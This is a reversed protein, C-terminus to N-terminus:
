SGASPVSVPAGMESPVICSFPFSSRISLLEDNTPAAPGLPISTQVGCPPNLKPYSKVAVGVICGGSVKAIPSRLPSPTGSTATSLKTFPKSWTKIRSFPLLAETTNVAVGAALETCNPCGTPNVKSPDLVPVALASQVVSVAFRGAPGVHVVVVGPQATPAPSSLQLKPSTLEPPFTVAVTAAESAATPLQVAVAVSAAPLAGLTVTLEVSITVEDGVGFGVGLGDGEGVGTTVTLSGGGCGGAGSVPAILPSSPPSPRTAPPTRSM